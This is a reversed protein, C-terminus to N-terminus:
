KQAGGLAEFIQRALNVSDTVANTTITAGSIALIQNEGVPEVKVVSLPNEQQLYQNLFEPKAANLGLGATESMSLIQVGSVKADVATIGTLVVVPGAYGNKQTNFVYGIIQDGKVGKQVVYSQGDLEYTMEEFSEAEPLVIRYLRQAEKRTNEEIVPATAWNTLALLGTTVFCVLFLVLVPKLLAPLNLKERNQDAM